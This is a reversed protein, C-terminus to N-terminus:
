LIVSQIFLYRVKGEELDGMKIRAVGLRHRANVDLEYMGPALVGERVAAHDGVIDFERDDDCSDWYKQVSRGQLWRCGRRISVVANEHDSTSNYLDALVLIEM